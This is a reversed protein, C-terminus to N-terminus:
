LEVEKYWCFVADRKGNSIEAKALRMLVGKHKIAPLV